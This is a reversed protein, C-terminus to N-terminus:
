RFGLNQIFGYVKELAPTSVALATNRISPQAGAALLVAAAIWALVRRIRNRKRESEWKEAGRAEYDSWRVKRVKWWYATVPGPWIAVVKGAGDSGARYISPYATFVTSQLRKQLRDNFTDTISARVTFSSVSRSLIPALLQMIYNIQAEESFIISAHGTAINPGLIMFLNPFGPVTTGLYATPGGKSDYYQQLTLGGPGTADITLKSFHFGTALVIVDLSIKQGTKTVLGDSELKAIGDWNLQVNPHHLAKLYGSDIVIRRCGPPYSPVLKDAYEKPVRRRLETTLVKRAAAQLLKNENRFLKYLIEHSLYLFARYAWMVGPVHAFMWKAWAPYKFHSRFAFWNPTRCFNIVKVSPDESIRPVFQVASAANGVVGVTKGALDIDKRWRATHVIPGKFDKMGPLDSPYRPETVVGSASVLAEVIEEYEKGTKLDRLTLRYHQADDDWVANVLATNLVVYKWLGYKKVLGKWYALIEPQLVFHSSWNPNLEYSLCYWHGAVDSACGPYTNDRWTGGIDSAKEFILFNDFNLQKKLAIAMSLGGVGAGIIGVRPKEKNFSM